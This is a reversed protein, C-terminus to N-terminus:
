RMRSPRIGALRCPGCNTGYAARLEAANDDQHRAVAGPDLVTKDCRLGIGYRRWKSFDLDIAIPKVTKRSIIFGLFILLIAASVSIAVSLKKLNDSQVSIVSVSDVLMDSLNGVFSDVRESIQEAYPDFKEMFKNGEDPGYEIYAAAMNKGMEYYGDFARSM